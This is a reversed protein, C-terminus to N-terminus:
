LIRQDYMQMSQQRPQERSYRVPAKRGRPARHLLARRAARGATPDQTRRGPMRSLSMAAECEQGLGNGQVQFYVLIFLIQNWGSGPGGTLVELWVAGEVCCAGADGPPAGRRDPEDPEDLGSPESPGTPRTSAPPIETWNPPASATVKIGLAPASPTTM